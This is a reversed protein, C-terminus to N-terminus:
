HNKKRTNSYLKSGLPCPTYQVKSGTRHKNRTFAQFRRTKFCQLRKHKSLAALMDGNLAIDKTPLHTELEARLLVM